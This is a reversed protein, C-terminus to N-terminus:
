SVQDESVELEMLLEAEEPTEARRRMEQLWPTSDDFQVVCSEASQPWILGVNEVVIPEKNDGVLDVVLEALAQKREAITWNKVIEIVSLTM